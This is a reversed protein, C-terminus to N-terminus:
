RLVEDGAITPFTALHFTLSFLLRYSDGFVWYEIRLKEPATCGKRWYKYKVKGFIVAIYKKKITFPCSWLDAM